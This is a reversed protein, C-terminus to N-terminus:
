DIRLFKKHIIILAKSFLGNIVADCTFAKPLFLKRYIMSYLTDDWFCLNVFISYELYKKVELNNLMQISSVYNNILPENM